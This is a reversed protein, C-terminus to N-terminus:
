EVPQESKMPRDRLLLNDANEPITMRMTFQFTTGKDPGASFVNISGENNEVLEKCIVLGMGIGEQNEDHRTNSVSHFM